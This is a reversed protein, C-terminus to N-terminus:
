SEAQQNDEDVEMAQVALDGELQELHDLMNQAKGKLVQLAQKFLQAPKIIGTSEITFIFHDKKRALRVAKALEPERICERCLTCDRVKDSVIARRGGPVGHAEEIDFCDMPCKKVLSDALDGTVEEVLDIRPLLRYWATAVPSWKAHGRDGCNNGKHCHMEMDLEQGPRLRTILIDDHVPAPPSSKFTEAQKGIPIWELQSSFVKGNIPEKDASDHPPKKCKVKLKFKIVEKELKDLNTTEDAGKAEASPWSFIEPDAMIPILGLRQAVLEDRLVGTNNYVFVKEIAMTPVEALLVRRISNALAVEIGSLDFSMQDEKIELIKMKVRDRWKNIDLVEDEPFTGPSYTTTHTPATGNCIVYEKFFRLDASM